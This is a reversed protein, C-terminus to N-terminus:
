ITLPQATYAGAKAQHAMGRFTPGLVHVSAADLSDVARRQQTLQGLASTAAVMRLLDAVGSPRMM